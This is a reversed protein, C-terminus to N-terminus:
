SVDVEIETGNLTCTGLLPVPAQVLQEAFCGRRALRVVRRVDDDPADSTITLHSRFEKVATELTGALVSGSQLVDFECRCEADTVETKTM